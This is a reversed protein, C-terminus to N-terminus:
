PCTFSKCRNGFSHVLVGTSTSLGQASLAHVMQCRDILDWFFFRRVQGGASFTTFLRLFPSYHSASQIGASVVSSFGRGFLRSASRETSPAMRRSLLASFGAM